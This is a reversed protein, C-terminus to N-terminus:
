PDRPLSAAGRLKSCCTPASYSICQEMWNRDPSHARGRCRPQRQRRQQLLRPWSEQSAAEQLFSLKGVAPRRLLIQFVSNDHQAFVTSCTQHLVPLSLRIARNLSIVMVTSSRHLPNPASRLPGVLCWHTEGPRLFTARASPLLPSSRFLSSALAAACAMRCSHRSMGSVRSVCSRAPRRQYCHAPTRARHALGASAPRPM